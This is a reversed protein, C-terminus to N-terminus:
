FTLSTQKGAGNGGGAADRKRKRKKQVPAATQQRGAETPPEAASQETALGTAAHTITRSGKQKKQSTPEHPASAVSPERDEAPGAAELQPSAAAAMQKAKATM